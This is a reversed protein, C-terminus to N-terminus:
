DSSAVAKIKLPEAYGAIHRAPVHGGAAAKFGLYWSLFLEEEADGDYPNLITPDYPAFDDVGWWFAKDRLSQDM